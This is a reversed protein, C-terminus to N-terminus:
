LTNKEMMMEYNIVNEAIDASYEGSRRISDTINRIPVALNVPLSLIETNIISYTDELQYMYEITKNAKKLDHTFFSEISKEFTNLAGTSATKVHNHIENPIQENMIRNANKAIRVSHDGVREIIRAIQFHPLMESINVNMKKSLHVNHMIMNTQRAILWFLRDVDNDREIVDTILDKDHAIFADIADTHMGKVIVFMRKLSNQIPMELPNLLDKIIISSDTEEVFEPGIVMNSFERLKMRILGTIRDKTTIHIANYGAIYVGILIRLFFDPDIGSNIELTKIRQVQDGTTNKTILLTGDPQVIVGLPDNKKIHTSEVWDKPLTIVYSSGGTM